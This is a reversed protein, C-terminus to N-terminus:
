RAKCPTTRPRADRRRVKDPDFNEDPNFVQRMGIHRDMAERVIALAEPLVDTSKLKGSTLGARIEQTRDRLQEDTLGLVRPEFANIEAVMRRFRKLLRDNRSGFIRTMTRGFATTTTAM